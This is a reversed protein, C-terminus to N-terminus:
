GFRVLAVFWGVLGIGRFLLVCFTVYDGDIALVAVMVVVMMLFAMGFFFSYLDGFTHKVITLQNLQKCHSPPCWVGGGEIKRKRM